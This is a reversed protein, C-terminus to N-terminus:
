SAELTRILYWHRNLRIFIPVEVSLTVGFLAHKLEFDLHLIPLVFHLVFNDTGETSVRSFWVLPVCLILRLVHPFHGKRVNTSPKALSHSTIRFQPVTSLRATAEDSDSHFHIPM